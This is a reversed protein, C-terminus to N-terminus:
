LTVQEGGVWVAAPTLDENWLVLDAAAGPVIVGANLGLLRAPSRTGLAWVQAAPRDLWALLNRMGEDMTLASGALAGHFPHGPNVIRAGQGPAVRVPYGWPTPYEGAPLGAGINADTILLVGDIGKAALAMQIVIPHVHVGDAIFDVSARPHALIAEVTGAPRAGPETEPPLPFVDYFHTAHVAGADIAALTEDVSARTHTIFPVAGAAVLREIVPLIKPTEPSISMVKLRGGCAALYAELLGLDGDLTACGAGTLATFPGELHLGPARAGDLTPLAAATEALLALFADDARPVLTPLFATVGFRPLMAAGARVAEAGADFQQLGIGHTHVDILGPTLL